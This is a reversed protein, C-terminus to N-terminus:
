DFMSLSLQYVNLNTLQLDFRIQHFRVAQFDNEPYM